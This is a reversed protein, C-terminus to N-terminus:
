SKNAEKVFENWANACTQAAVNLEKRQPMHFGENLGRDFNTLYANVTHLFARFLRELAPRALFPPMAASAALNAINARCAALLESQPSASALIHAIERFQNFIANGALIQRQLPHNYLLIKEAEAANDEVAGLWSRRAAIFDAHALDIQRALQLGQKGDDRITNNAVYKELNLYHGILANLAKDMNALSTTIIGAETENFLGEEPKLDPKKSPKPRAPLRWTQLYTHSNAQLRDALSYFGSDLSAQGRNIYALIKDARKTAEASPPTTENQAQPSLQASEANSSKTLAVSNDGQAFEPKSSAQTQDEDTDCACLFLAALLILIKSM